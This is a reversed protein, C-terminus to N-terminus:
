AVAAGIEPANLIETVQSRIDELVHGFGTGDELSIQFTPQLKVTIKPNLGTVQCELYTLVAGDKVAPRTPPRRIAVPLCRTFRVENQVNEVSSAIVTLLRHKDDNSLSALSILADNTAQGGIYIHSSKIFDIATRDVGTWRVM